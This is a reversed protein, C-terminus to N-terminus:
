IGTIGHATTDAAMMKPVDALRWARAVGDRAGSAVIASSFFSGSLPASAGTMTGSTTDSTRISGSRSSAPAFACALVADGLLVNECRWHAFSGSGDAPHDGM